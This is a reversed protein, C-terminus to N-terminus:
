DKDGNYNKSLEVNMQSDWFQSSYVCDQKTKDFRFRIMRPHTLRKSVRSVEQGDVEVVQDYLQPDLTPIGDFGKITYQVKDKKEINPVYAIVKQVTKGDAERIFASIEYSGILGEDATGDKSMTFGTIFGDITDGLGAKAASGSITRKLKIFVGKDRNETTCYVGKMNHAVIGEGGQELISDLFAEKESRTGQLKEIRELNIGRERAYKVVAEEIQFAEGLPRKRYDKGKFYLPTILRLKILDKNYIRKYEKQLEIAQTKNMQLLASMAELKSDTTLGFEELQEQVDAEPEYKVEVDVAFPEDGAFEQNVNGWYEPLGCNVQSYNRSFLKVVGKSYIFVGRVGNEKNTFVWEKKDFVEKKKDEKLEDYRAALCPNYMNLKFRTAADLVKSLDNRSMLSGISFEIGTEIVKEVEALIANASIYDRAAYVGGRGSPKLIDKKFSEQYGISLRKFMSVLEDKRLNM